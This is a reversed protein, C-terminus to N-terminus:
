TERLLLEKKYKYYSGRACGCLKIVDVDKLSGGFDICHKLIIQKREQAKKTEYTTGQKHGSISGRIHAERIGEITRDRLLDVEQQARIFALRIQERALEMLYKNIGDIIYDVATGTATITRELVNRYVTTDIHPEKLFHLEVGENYLEEYLAFGEEANRSMRSVEDFVVVDGRKLKKRIAIWNPREFSKGTFYDCVIIATPYHRLINEIQREIKQKRTSCRCYGYIM